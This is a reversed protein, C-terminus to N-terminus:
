KRKWKSAYLWEIAENPVAEQMFRYYLRVPSGSGPSHFSLTTAPNSADDWRHQGIVSRKVPPTFTVHFTGYNVPPSQAVATLGVLSLIVLQISWGRMAVMM